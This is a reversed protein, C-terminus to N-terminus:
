PGPGESECLARTGSSRTRSRRSSVTFVGRKTNKTTAAKSTRGTATAACSARKGNTSSQFAGAPVAVSTERKFGAGRVSALRIATRLPCKVVSGATAHSKDPRVNCVPGAEGRMGIGLHGCDTQMPEPEVAHAEGDPRATTRVPCRGNKMSTKRSISQSARGPM